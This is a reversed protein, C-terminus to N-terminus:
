RLSTQASLSDLARRLNMDRSEIRPGMRSLARPPEVVLWASETRRAILGNFAVVSPQVAVTDPAGPVPTSSPLDAPRSGPRAADLLVTATVPGAPTRLRTSACSVFAHGNVSPYPPPTALLTRSEIVDVGRAGAAPVVRCPREAPAPGTITTARQRGVIQGRTTVVSKPTIPRDEADLYVAGQDNEGPLLVVVRWGNPMGPATRPLVRRGRRLRVNAVREDVISFTLRGGRVVTYGGAIFPRDRTAASGCGVGGYFRQQGRRRFTTGSCWGVEGVELSPFIQVEYREDPSGPAPFGRNPSPTPATASTARTLPGSAPASPDGGGSVVAATATGVAAATILAVITSRGSLRGLRTRIRLRDDGSAGASAATERSARVLEDHLRDFPDPNNTM